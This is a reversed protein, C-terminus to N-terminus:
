REVTQVKVDLLVRVVFDLGALLPVEADDYSRAPLAHNQSEPYALSCSPTTSAHDAMGPLIKDPVYGLFGPRIAHQSLDPTLKAFGPTLLREERLGRFISKRDLFPM